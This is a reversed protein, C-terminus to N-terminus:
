WKVGKGILKNAYDVLEELTMEDRLTAEYDRKAQALKKRAFAHKSDAADLEDQLHAITKKYEDAEKQAEIVANKYAEAAANIKTQRKDEAIEKKSPKRKRLDESEISPKTAKAKNSAIFGLDEKKDDTLSPEKKTEKELDKRYGEANSQIMEYFQKAAESKFKFYPESVREKLYNAADILTKTDKFEHDITEGDVTVSLKIM